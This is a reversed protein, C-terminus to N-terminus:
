RLSGVTQLVIIYLYREVYFYLDNSVYCRISDNKYVKAKANGDEDYEVVENSGEVMVIAAATGDDEHETIQHKSYMCGPDDKNKRGCCWWM